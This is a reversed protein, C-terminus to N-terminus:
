KQRQEPEKLFEDTPHELYVTQLSGRRYFSHSMERALTSGSALDEQKQIAMMTM